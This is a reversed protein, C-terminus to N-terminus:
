WWAPATPRLPATGEGPLVQPEPPPALAWLPPPENPQMSGITIGNPLKQFPTQGGRFDPRTTNGATAQGAKDSNPHVGTDVNSGQYFLSNPQTNVNTRPMFIKNDGNMGGNEWSTNQQSHIPVDIPMHIRELPLQQDYRLGLHEPYDISTITIDKIGHPVAMFLAEDYFGERLANM